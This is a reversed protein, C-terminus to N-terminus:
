KKKLSVKGLKIRPISIVRTETSHIVSFSAIEVLKTSKHTSSLEIVAVVDKKIYTYIYIMKLAFIFEEYNTVEKPQWQLKIVLFWVNLFFFFVNMLM